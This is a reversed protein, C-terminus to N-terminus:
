NKADLGKRFAFFREAQIGFLLLVAQSLQTRVYLKLQM